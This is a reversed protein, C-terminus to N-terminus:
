QALGVTGRRWNDHTQVCIWRIVHLDTQHTTDKDNVTAVARGEDKWVDSHGYSPIEISQDYECLEQSTVTYM